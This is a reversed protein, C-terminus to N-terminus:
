GIEEAGIHLDSLQLAPGDNPPAFPQSAASLFYSGDRINCDQLQSLVAERVTQDSSGYFYFWIWSRDTDFGAFRVDGSRRLATKFRDHLKDFTGGDEEDGGTNNALRLVLQFPAPPGVSRRVIFFLVLLYVSGFALALPWGWNPRFYTKAYFWIAVGFFLV